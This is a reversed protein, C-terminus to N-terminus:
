TNRQTMEKIHKNKNDAVLIIRKLGLGSVQIRTSASKPKLVAM